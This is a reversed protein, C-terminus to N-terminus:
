RLVGTVTISASARPKGTTPRIHRTWIDDLVTLGAVENWGLIDRGNRIPQLPRAPFGFSRLVIPAVRAAKTTGLYETGRSECSM